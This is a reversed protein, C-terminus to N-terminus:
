YVEVTCCDDVSSMYVEFAFQLTLKELVPSHKLICTLADFDPGVCWYANLLLTKLKNFTPCSKL